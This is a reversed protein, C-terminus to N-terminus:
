FLEEYPEYWYHKAYDNPLRASLDPYEPYLPNFGRRVVDANYETAAHQKAAKLTDHQALQIGKHDFTRWRKDIQAIVHYRPQPYLFPNLVARAALVRKIPTVTQLPNNELIQPTTRFLLWGYSAAANYKEIDEIFGSARTHRGRTYVGGEIEVAVRQPPWACDFRWRRFPMFTYEFAFPPMDPALAKWVYRFMDNSNTM